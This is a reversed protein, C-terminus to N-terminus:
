RMLGALLEAKIERGTRTIYVTQSGKGMTSAVRAKEIKEGDWYMTTQLTFIATATIICPYSSSVTVSTSATSATSTGSLSGSSNSPSGYQPTSTVTVTTGPPINTASVNVTVPNTTGAPLIVDPTGYTGSPSGPVAAGGISTITLTPANTVFVTSPISYSQPPNANSTRTVANAEFCVRGVSGNGGDGDGEECGSNSGAGGVASIVGEGSITNAMLRIAGGSGGGGCGAYAGTSGGGAGGNATISGSVTLTGSSAIVIAGGGGGGAGGTASGLAWGAGGGGGSGGIMPQIEANGYAAGGTGGVSWTSVSVANSGSAGFGGGGGGGNVTDNAPSSPGGGGPGLGNGGSLGVNGGIGGNFGGPGANGPYMSNADAGNVSLTGAITVDGTALMYVPTNSANGVFTVTVGSPITVTTFNFVGSSPVQLSVNATPSFAGDAGTSGSSFGYAASSAILSIIIGAVSSILRRNMKEEKEIM